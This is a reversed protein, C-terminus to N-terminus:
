PIIQDEIIKNYQGIMREVSFNNKAKIKANNGFTTRLSKNLILEEIKEALELINRFQFLRGYSNDIIEATGGTDSAIIPLGTAMAELIANSCGEGLSSHIFIDSAYLIDKVDTRLGPFSVNRSLNLSEILYEIRHRESGEGIAIFHFPIGKAKILELAYLITTYDKYPVLNALSTLLVTNEDIGLERRILSSKDKNELFFDEDIGNYLVSGRNLKNAKLGAHSNAVINRSLHLILLRWIQKPRFLVLGHRISGNIHIVSTIMSLFLGYTAEAGGWSWIYDAKNENVIEIIEILRKIPRPSSLVFFDNSLKYEDIYTNSTRNLCVVKNIVFGHKSNKCITALQRERGGRNFSSIVHVVTKYEM